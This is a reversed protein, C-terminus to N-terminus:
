EDMRDTHTAARITFSIEMYEGPESVISVVDEDDCYMRIREITGWLGFSSGEEDTDPASKTLIKEIQENSMGVGTDRVTLKLTHDSLHASIRIIGKEGKLRIGHYISNEVLPQLILKPVMFDYTDDDIDYEDEIIDGYRLKQLSLYDKVISIEKSLRIVRDGKSLFNRYFSGLTELAYHVNDAGSDLALFGITELSNYLFHPKIQENLVRLESKRLTKEKNVLTDILENVHDIMSNYDGKLLNLESYQLNADIKRLEGSRKNKEMEKSLKLIPSTINRAIYAGIYLTTIIFIFLLVMLVYIISYPIGETGFPSVRILVIPLGEIRTAAVLENGHGTDISSYRIDGQGPDSSYYKEYEKKGAIYTGDTGLICINTYNQQNLIKTFVEPSIDMLLIGTRKQTYIDYVARGITVVPTKDKKLAVNNNNLSVVAKGRAEYIDKKWSYKELLEHDYEYSVRDTAAVIYDERFVFVADVGEKVNLIEMIGFRADNIMSQSVSDSDAKLFTTLRDETMILRSIETYNSISSSISASLTMLASGADRMAYDRRERESILYMSVLFSIIVVFFTGAFVRKLSGSLSRFRTNGYDAKPAKTRHKM